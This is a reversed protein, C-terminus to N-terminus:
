DKMTELFDPLVDKAAKTREVVETQETEISKNVTSCKRTLWM